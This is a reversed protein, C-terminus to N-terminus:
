YRHDYREPEVLVHDYKVSDIMRGRMSSTVTRAFEPENEVLKHAAEKNLPDDPNPVQFLLRLGFLVAQINLVPKWDERLINLCIHGETDINPHYITQLCRVKPAEHPYNQNVSFQFKFEGHKYYGEQPRYIVSFEMINQPSTVIETDDYTELEGLDKQLRIKAPSERPQSKQAEADNKKKDWIKRM